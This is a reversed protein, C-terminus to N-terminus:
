RLWIRNRTSSGIASGVIKAPMRIAADEVTPMAAEREERAGAPEASLDEGVRGEAAIDDRGGQQHDSSAVTSSSTTSEDLAGGGGPLPRHASSGRRREPGEPVRDVEDEVLALRLGAGHADAPQALHQLEGPGVELEREHRRSRWPTRSAAPCRARGCRRAVLEEGRAGRVDAARDRREAQDHEEDGEEADAEQVDADREDQERDRRDDGVGVHADTPDIRLRDVRRAAVPQGPALDGELDLQRHRQRRDHGADADRETDTMAVAVIAGSALTSVSPRGIM